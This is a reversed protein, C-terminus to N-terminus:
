HRAAPSGQALETSVHSLFRSSSFFNSFDRFLLHFVGSLCHLSLRYDSLVFPPRDMTVRAMCGVIKASSAKLWPLSVEDTQAATAAVGYISCIPCSGAVGIQAIICVHVLHYVFVGDLLFPDCFRTLFIKRLKDSSLAFIPFGRKEPYSGRAAM